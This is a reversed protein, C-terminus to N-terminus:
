LHDFRGRECEPCMIESQQRFRSFACKMFLVWMYRLDMKTIRELHISVSKEQGTTLNTTKDQGHISPDAADREREGIKSPHGEDLLRQRRFGEYELSLREKRWPRQFCVQSYLLTMLRYTMKLIM